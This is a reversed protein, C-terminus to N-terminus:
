VCYVELMEVPNIMTDLKFERVQCWCFRYNASCRLQSSKANKNCLLFFGNSGGSFFVKVFFYSIKKNICGKRKIEILIRVPYGM